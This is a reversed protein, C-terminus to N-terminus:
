RAGTFRLSFAGRVEGLQYGTATDLPYRSELAKLTEPAVVKGHCVLCLPEVPQAKLLRFGSDTLEAHVLESIREGALRRAEFSELVAREWEDPVATEPNRAKLSVRRVHWGSQESLATAIKPAEVSCVEIAHVPGGEAMASKLRPKLQGAFQEVLDYAIAEQNGAQVPMSM